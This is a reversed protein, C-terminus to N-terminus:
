WAERGVSAGRRRRRVVVAGAGGVLALLGFGAFALIPSGGGPTPVWLLEGEIVAPTSGVRFPVEWDYAKTRVGPDEVAPPRGEGMYHIRHDHFVYRGSGDVARWDPAADRTANPPISGSGDREDNIYAASSNRNVAVTGDPEIRVYPEGDYGEMVVTEPSRNTVELSDDYNLVRLSVGDPVAPRVSTITSRYNPDGDHAIATVPALACASAVAAAVVRFSPM